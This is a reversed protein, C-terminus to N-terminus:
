KLREAGPLNRVAAVFAQGKEEFGGPWLSYSPAATSLLIVSTAPSNDFAWKVAENMDKTELLRPSYNSPLQSKIQSGTDPFLVLNPINLEALKQVLQGFDYLRDEGGLLIAGISGVSESVAKIGALTAEPTSGIADDVFTKGGVQGLVELRHELPQFSKVSALASDQSVDFLSAAKAALLVNHTNHAGILKTKSLDIPKVTDILLARAGSEAVWSAIKAEDKPFIVKTNQNATILLRKKAAQYAEASGFYPLHDNELNTYVAVDPSTELDACHYAGLEVVVITDSDIEGLKDLAPIGINGCLVTKKGADALMHHLLAATTTKGKTGTIGVITANKEKALSFFLNMPTTYPVPVLRGPVGASKFIVTKAQDLARLDELYNPSDKQDVFKFSAIGTNASTLFKELSLGERAQGICVIDKGGLDKLNTM